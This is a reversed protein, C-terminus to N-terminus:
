CSKFQFNSYTISINITEFKIVYSEWRVGRTWYQSVLLFFIQNRNCLKYLVRVSVRGKFNFYKIAAMYKSTKVRGYAFMVFM